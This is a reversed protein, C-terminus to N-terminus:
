RFPNVTAFLCDYCSFGFTGRQALRRNERNENLESLDVKWKLPSLAPDATGAALVRYQAITIGICYLFTGVSLARESHLSYVRRNYM